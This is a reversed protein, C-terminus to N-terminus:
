PRAAPEYAVPVLDAAVYRARRALELTWNLRPGDLGAAAVEAGVALRILDGAVATAEHLLVATIPADPQVDTRELFVQGDADDQRLLSTFQEVTFVGPKGAPPVPTATRTKPKSKPM